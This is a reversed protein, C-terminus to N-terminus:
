EKEKNHASPWKPAHASTGFGAQHERPPKRFDPNKLREEQLVAKKELLERLAQTDVTPLAHRDPTFGTELALREPTLAAIKADIQALQAHIAALRNVNQDM